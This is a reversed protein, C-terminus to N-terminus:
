LSLRFPLNLTFRVLSKLCTFEHCISRKAKIFARNRHLAVCEKHVECASKHFVSTSRCKELKDLVLGTVKSSQLQAEVRAQEGLVAERLISKPHPAGGFRDM